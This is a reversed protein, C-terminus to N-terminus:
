GAHIHPRILPNPEVQRLIERTMTATEGEGWFLFRAAHWLPSGETWTLYAHPVVRYVGDENVQNRMWMLVAAITPAVSAGEVRLVRFTEDGTIFEGTITCEAVQFDSSDKVDVELFVVDDGIPTNFAEQEQTLKERYHNYSREGPRDCMVSLRGDRVSDRIIALATQDANIMSLDTRLEFSRYIRSVISTAVIFIIFLIAIRLGDPREIASVGLTYTFILTIVSFYVAQARRAESHYKLAVAFAASTMLALVGTAYAAGQADVDADFLITVGFSMTTIVLVLPRVSSIFQPAMGYRPLYNPILNLLGAMASAGAFWLIAITSLDYATGFVPGLYRYALYALARGNAKGGTLFEEAPILTTTAVSTFILFVSMIAAASILLKRANRIRGLPREYTDGPAGQIQPMVAVGTEFGSLGLALKPFLLAAALVVRTPNGWGIILADQWDLLVQPRSIMDTVALAVVVANLALYVVVLLVAVNIAEGFGYLFVFGLLGVLILTVPLRQGHLYETVVPNELIHATADAASLTITIIWGTAAFGLLALIFAKGKWRSLLGRLMLISGEGHPSENAVKIYIPMAGFLTVLVLIVTAIPSLAGAAVFAISPQYGLTSFYDVGTLCMVRWWSHTHERGVHEPDREFDHTRKSETAGQHELLWAGVANVLGGPRAQAPFPDPSVYARRAVPRNGPDEPSVDHDSPRVPSTTM